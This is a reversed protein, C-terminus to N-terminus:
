NGASEELERERYAEVDKSYDEVMARLEPYEKLVRFAEDTSYVLQKPGDGNRSEELGRWDLLVAEALVRCVIDEQKQPDMTGNEIQRRFPRTLSQFLRQSRPNGFRAIKLECGEGAPQWVGENEKETSTKLNKLDM